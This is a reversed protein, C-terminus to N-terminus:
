MDRRYDLAKRVATLLKEPLIPKSLYEFQGPIKAKKQLIEDSYGSLFVCPVSPYLERVASLAEYGNMRPMIVDLLLLDVTDGFNEMLMVVETGDCAELVQYGFDQLLEVIMPRVDENDEGILITENGSEECKSETFVGVSNSLDSQGYEPLWISFTSGKGEATVVRIFGHHQKVIGFIIALGLG